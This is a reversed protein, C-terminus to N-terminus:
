AAPARVLRVDGSRARLTIARAGARPAQEVPLDSHLSGSGTMVDLRISVGDPVGITLTGSGTALDVNGHAADVSTSGSGTRAHLDGHVLTATLTGSGFGCTLHGGIEGLHLEGRGGKVQASGTVARVRSEGNGYRLRLDGAVTGLDVSANGSAIDADGVRGTVTIAATATTLKVATGTPVVIVVDIADRDKRWGGLLDPLGGQRPATVTLTTGRLDVTTKELLEEVRGRASLTVTAEILDDRAEVTLSGHGLRVMLSIPATLPFTFTTPNM